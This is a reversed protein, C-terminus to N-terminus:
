MCFELWAACGFRCVYSWLTCIVCSWIVCTYILRLNDYWIVCVTCAYCMVDNYGCKCDWMICCVYEHVWVVMSMYRHYWVVM